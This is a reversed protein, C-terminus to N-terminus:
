VFMSLSHLFIMVHWTKVMVFGCWEWSTLLHVSPSAKKFKNLLKRVKDILCSFQKPCNTRPSMRIVLKELHKSRKLFIRAVDIKMMGMTSNTIDLWWSNNKKYFMAYLNNLTIGICSYDQPAIDRAILLKWSSKWLPKLTNM